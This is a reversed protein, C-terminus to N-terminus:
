PLVGPHERAIRQALARNNGGVHDEVAEVLRRWTPMGFREVQLHLSCSYLTQSQWLVHICTYVLTHVTVGGSIFLIQLVVKGNQNMIM